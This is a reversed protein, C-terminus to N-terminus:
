NMLPSRHASYGGALPAQVLPDLGATVKPFQRLNSRMGARLHCQNCFLYQGSWDSRTVLDGLCTPCVKLLSALDLRRGRPEFTHM